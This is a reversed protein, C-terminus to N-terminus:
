LLSLNNPPGEPRSSREAVLKYRGPMKEDELFVKWQEPYKRFVTGIDGIPKLSYTTVFASLFSSRIRRVNLGVGVEGSFLM